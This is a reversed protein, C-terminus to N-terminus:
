NQWRAFIGCSLLRGGSSEKIALEGCSVSGGFERVATELVQGYTIASYLSAYGNLVVALPSRSLINKIRSLLPLLDEEIKWVEGKAGKGYVPPDMLIIDYKNGRKIEREVFKRVDDVIFRIKAKSLGSLEMNTHALDVAFESSDVHCVEAGVRACALSAGGTYAFLNLVSVPKKTSKIKDELWQWQTGQEPFIGIHKSPLLQLQFVLDGLNVNWSKKVSVATKWKGATGVRTFIADAERWKEEPLNKPWIAQPDPRSLVINGYRELKEGQGSDLLEYEPSKETILM